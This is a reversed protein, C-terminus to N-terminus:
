LADAKASERSPTKRAAAAKKPVAPTKTAVTAAGIAPAPAAAAAQKAALEALTRSIEQASERLDPVYLHVAEAMTMSSAFFSMSLIGAVFGQDMIPVAITSTKGPNLTSVTRDNTAYGDDRIRRTLVGSRFMDFVVKNGPSVELGSLLCDRTEDDVFALHAFGAACELMHCAYGPYYNNFARSTMAYTSDRVLMSPGAPTTMHVPWGHKRTLSVLQPRAAQLLHGHEHVGVSLTQVLSTARYLKRVPETEIMGEHILTQVIRITTPYPLDIARAIEMLSSPGHRNIFQLMALSRSISRVPVGKEM